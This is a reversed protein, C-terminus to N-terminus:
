VRIEDIGISRGLLVWAETHEEMLEVIDKRCGQPELSVLNDGIRIQTRGRGEKHSDFM